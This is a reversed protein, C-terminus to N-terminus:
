KMSSNYKLKFCLGFNTQHTLSTINICLRCWHAEGGMAEFDSYIHVRSRM